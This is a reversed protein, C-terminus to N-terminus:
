PWFDGASKRLKGTQQKALFDSPALFVWRSQINSSRNGFRQLQRLRTHDRIHVFVLARWDQPLPYRIRYTSLISNNEVQGTQGTRQLHNALALRAADLCYPKVSIDSAVSGGHIRWYYLIQPIHVIKQAQESLRLIYDYDQSGDCAPDFSGIQESLARAFM